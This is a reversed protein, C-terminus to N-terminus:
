YELALEGKISIKLSMELKEQIFGALNLCKIGKEQAIKPIKKFIKNDNSTLSEETIIVCQGKLIVYHILKFDASKIFDQKQSSYEQEDLQGRKAFSVIFNNDIERHLKKTIVEDFPTARIPSDKLFEKFVLGQAVYKCEDKVATLLIFDKREFGELLFNRLQGSADFPLYYRVLYVLSNTDFLYKDM